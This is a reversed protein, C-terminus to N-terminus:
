FARKFAHKAYPQVSEVRNGRMGVGANFERSAFRTMTQSGADNVCVRRREDVVDFADLEEIWVVEWLYWQVAAVM